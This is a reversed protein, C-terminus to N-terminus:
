GEPNAAWARADDLQSMPFSRLVVPVMMSSANTIFGVWPIDSVVAAHTIDTIHTLDFKMGDFITTPDFGDFREIVEVLRITGHKDIFKELKPIIEDMDHQTVRGLIQIEAVPASKHETYICAM